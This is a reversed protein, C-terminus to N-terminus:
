LHTKDTPLLHKEFFYFIFLTLLHSYCSSIRQINLLWKRIRLRTVKLTTTMPETKLRIGIRFIDPVMPVRCDRDVVIGKRDHVKEEKGMKRKWGNITFQLRGAWDVIKIMQTHTCKRVKILTTNIRSNPNLIDIIANCFLRKTEKTSM